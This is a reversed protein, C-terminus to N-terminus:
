PKRKNKPCTQSKFSFFLLRNKVQSQSIQSCNAFKKLSSFYTPIKM